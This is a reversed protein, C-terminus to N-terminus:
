ATLFRAKLGEVRERLTELRVRYLLFTVYLVTFTLLSFFFAPRMGASLPADGKTQPSNAGFFLTPHTDQLISTSVFTLIVSVFGVISYVAAFRRRRDPDEVAGRLMFYALYVLWMITASALRPTWVWWTNWAPRAWISGTILVMTIFVLGIEISSLSIVDYRVNGSRLYLIGSVLAVLFALAGVWAAGVHFYFIRQVEGMTREQPAVLFVLVLAIVVMIASLSGM